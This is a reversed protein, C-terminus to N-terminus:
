VEWDPTRNTKEMKDFLLYLYDRAGKVQCEYKKSGYVNIKIVVGINGHLKKDNGYYLFEEGIEFTM